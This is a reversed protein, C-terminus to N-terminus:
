EDLDKFDTEDEDLILVQAFAVKGVHRVNEKDVLGLEELFSVINNGVSNIIHVDEKNLIEKFTKKDVKDGKYFDSTLDLIHENEDEIKTNYISIDCVALVIKNDEGYKHKKAIFFDSQSNKGEAM